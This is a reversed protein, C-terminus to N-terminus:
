LVGRTFTNGLQGSYRKGMWAQFKEVPTTYFKPPSSDMEYGIMNSWEGLIRSRHVDEESYDLGHRLLYSDLSRLTNM